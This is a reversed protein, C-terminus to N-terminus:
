VQQFAMNGIQWDWSRHLKGFKVEKVFNVTILFDKSFGPSFLFDLAWLFSIFMKSILLPETVDPPYIQAIKTNTYVRM